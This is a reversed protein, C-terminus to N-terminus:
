WQISIDRAAVDPNVPNGAFVTPPTGVACLAEVLHICATSKGVGGNEGAILFLKAM